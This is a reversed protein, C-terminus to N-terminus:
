SSTKSIWIKSVENAEALLVEGIIEAKPFETQIENLIQHSKLPDVSLLLGGSTQPDFLLLQELESIGQMQLAAETYARNTRHAKTLFGRSFFDLTGPFFPLSSYSLKLHVASAKAMQLSHGLLGFGTIDTAAHV